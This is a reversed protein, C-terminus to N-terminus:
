FFILRCLQVEAELYRALTKWLKIERIKEWEDMRLLIKPCHANETKARKTFVCSDQPHRMCGQPVVQTHTPTRTHPAGRQDDTVWLFCVYQHWDFRVQLLPHHLTIELEALRHAPDECEDQIELDVRPVTDWRGCNAALQHVLEYQGPLALSLRTQRGHTFCLKRRKCVNGQVGECPEGAEPGLPLLREGLLCNLLQYRAACDQGLVLIYPTAGM